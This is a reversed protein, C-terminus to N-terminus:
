AHVPVQLGYVLEDLCALPLHHTVKHLVLQKLLVAVALLYLPAVHLASSINGKKACSKVCSSQMSTGGQM